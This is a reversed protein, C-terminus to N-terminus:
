KSKNPLEEAWSKNFDWIAKMPSAGFGAIGDQLDKGYLVCWQNGDRQLTPKLLIFLNMEETEIAVSLESQIRDQSECRRANMEEVALEFLRDEQETM